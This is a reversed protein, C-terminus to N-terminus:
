NKYGYKNESILKGTDDKVYELRNFEDYQYYITYGRPDTISTVGILPDYTYTTVLADNPLVTRLNNLAQRLAGETGQIGTQHDIDADSKSQINSIYSSVENYEINEIKAVPYKQDYGWVYVTHTGGSIYSEKINGNDYYEYHLRDENSSANTGKQIYIIEPMIVGSNLSTAYDTKKTFLLTNDRYTETKVVENLRNNAVLENAGTVNNDKPYSLINKVTENDSTTTTTERLLFDINSDHLMNATTSLVNGNVYEKKEVKTTYGVRSGSLSVGKKLPGLTNSLCDGTVPNAGLCPSQVSPNNNWGVLTGKIMQYSYKGPHTTSPQIVPFWHNSGGDYNIYMGKVSNAFGQDEYHTTTQAVVDGAANHVNVEKQKGHEHNILYHNAFPPVGYSFVGSGNAHAYFEYETYGNNKSGKLTEYVKRYVVHPRTGGSSSTVRNSYQITTFGFDPNDPTPNSNLQESITTYELKPSFLIGANGDDNYTYEKELALVNNDSYDRISRIRMGAAIPKGNHFGTNNILEVDEERWVKASLTKGQNPNLMKVRYSGAELVLTKQGEHYYWLVDWTGNAVNKKLIEAQFPFQGSSTASTATGIINYPGSEYIKFSTDLSKPAGNPYQDQCEYDTPACAGSTGGALNALLYYVDQKITNPREGTSTFSISEEVYHPEYEFETYGGTPYTMKTLVGKKAHDFDSYRDAGDYKDIGLRIRPYLVENDAGNYYGLYDQSLSTRSPLSNPSDYEFGYSHLTNNASNVLISDLKLRIKEHNALIEETNTGDKFYSYKFDFYKLLENERDIRYIKIKDIRNSSYLDNRSGLDMEIIKNGNHTISSLFKQSIKYSTNVHRGGVAQYTNETNNGDDKNVTVSQVLAAPQPQSWMGTSAYELEYVDKKNKSVIKTLVWSSNYNKVVGYGGSIDDSESSTTEYSDFYFTTGDENIVKWTQISNNANSTVSVKIRPNNLAQPQLDNVDFVFHDSLGLANFSFYDPLADYKGDHIERLFTFYNVVDQQSDFLNHNETYKLLPQRVETNDWITFYKPSASNFDDPQGNIVRSIRGGVNLNWGLGVQTALQEVKVGTADYSLNIPLSLERGEIVYIPVQINPTGTFMSVSTNGYKTFAAAEPSNPITIMRSIEATANFVGSDEQGFCLSGGSLFLLMLRSLLRM